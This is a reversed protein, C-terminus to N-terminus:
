ALAQLEGRQPVSWCADHTKQCPQLICRWLDQSVGTLFRLFQQTVAFLALLVVVLHGVKFRELLTLPDSNDFDADIDSMQIYVTSTLSANRAVAAQCAKKVM